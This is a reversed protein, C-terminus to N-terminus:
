KYTLIYKDQNEVIINIAILLNKCKINKVNIFLYYWSNWIKNIILTKM